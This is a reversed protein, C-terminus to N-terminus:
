LQFLKASILNRLTGADHLLGVLSYLYVRVGHQLERSMVMVAVIVINRRMDLSYIPCRLVPSINLVM